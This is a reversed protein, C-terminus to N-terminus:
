PAVKLTEALRSLEVDLQQGKEVRLTRRARELAERAAPIQGAQRLHDVFPAVIKDFFDIGAGAGYTELLKRYTRVRGALDETRLSRQLIEGAQLLSLDSRGVRHKRVLRQEEVDAVSAEGRQRLSAILQRGFAVELDPYKQLAMMAERLTAERLRPDGGAAEQAALLVNWAQLNRRERNASERAAKLAAAHNGERLYEAAFFAHIMSLQYLPGARFRESLFLLEHDTLERWTQPDRVLGAVYKQEAYRGADMVWGHPSLFGFWAHRGDLGAGRFLLTPVGRAKGVQVAFYAQDVCIGGERQITELRYNALPWSYKASEVRDQRYRIMDYAKALETIPPTVNRQAWTLEAFPTSTDVVFKLESAPLRRLKHAAVNARDLRTWHNFADVPEPLKRPLLAPSVQGHPWDPPPPVDYVVAIALALSAYDAFLAPNATQLKHLIGLLEIPHDQDSITAFFEQSFAAHGILWRQLVPSLEGGLSGPPLEYRAAMNRHAGGAREIAAVWSEIAKARPTAFLNAWRFLYFWPAATAPDREYAELAATRLTLSWKGWGGRAASEVLADLRAPSPPRALEDFPITEQAHAFPAVSFVSILLILLWTSIAPPAKRGSSERRSCLTPAYLGEWWAGGDCCPRRCGGRAFADCDKLAPM